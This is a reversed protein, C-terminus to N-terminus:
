IQKFHVILSLNIYNQIKYKKVVMNNHSIGERGEQFLISLALHQEGLTGKNSIRIRGTGKSCNETQQTNEIDEERNNSTTGM